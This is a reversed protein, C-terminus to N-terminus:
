PFLPLLANTRPFQRTLSDCFNRSQCVKPNSEKFQAQDCGMTDVPATIRSRMQKITDYTEKWKEPAPHPVALSQPVPKVKRPSKNVSGQRKPASSSPVPTNTQMKGEFAEEIFEEVKTEVKIRKSKRPSTAAEESEFLTVGANYPSARATLRTTRTSMTRKLGSM